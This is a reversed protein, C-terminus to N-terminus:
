AMPGDNFHVSLAHLVTFIAALLLITTTIILASTLELANDVVEVEEDYVDDMDENAM